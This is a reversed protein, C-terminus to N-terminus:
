SVKTPLKRVEDMLDDHTGNGNEKFHYTEWMDIIEARDEVSIEGQKLYKAGLVRINYSLLIRNIDRQHTLNEQMSDIKSNISEITQQLNFDEEEEKDSNRDEKTARRNLIWLVLEKAFVVLAAIVGSTFMYVVYNPESM